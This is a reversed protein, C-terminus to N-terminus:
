LGLDSADLEVWTYEGFGQVAATGYIHAQITAPGLLIPMDIDNITWRHHHLDVGDTVAASAFPHYWRHVEILGTATTAGTTYIGYAKCAPAFLNDRRYNVVTLVTSAGAGIDNTTTSWIIYDETNGVDELTINLALPIMLLGAPVTIAVQPENEDYATEAFSLKTGADGQQAYFVRGELKWQLISDRTILVSDRALAASEYNGTSSVSRGIKFEM